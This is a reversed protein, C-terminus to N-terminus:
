KHEVGPVGGAPNRVLKNYQQVEDLPVCKDEALGSWGVGVAIEKPDIYRFRVLDSKWPQVFMKPDTVTINLELINQAVRHWREEVQAQDSIPYGFHDLWQRDDLGVTNVILTDGEWRGISYGNWRPLYEDVKAQPRGDLWVERRDWTWEFFQLMRNPTMVIEMPSPDYLLLRVLGLPNCSGVYDNGQAPAMARRRGVPVKTDQAQPTGIRAGYSPKQADFKRKGEPTWSPETTANFGYQNGRWIGSLDKADFPLNNAQLTAQRGGQGLPNGGGGAQQQGRQQAVGSATVALVGAAIALVLRHQM